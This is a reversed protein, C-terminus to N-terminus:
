WVFPILRYRTKDRYAAYGPLQDLVMARLGPRIEVV